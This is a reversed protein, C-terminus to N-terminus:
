AIHACNRAVLMTANPSNIGSSRRREKFYPTIKEAAIPAQATSSTDPHSRARTRAAEPRVPFKEARMDHCSKNVKMTGNDTKRYARRLYETVGLKNGAPITNTATVTTNM